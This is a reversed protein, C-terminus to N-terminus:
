IFLFSQFLFLIVNKYPLFFKIKVKPIHSRIEFFGVQM